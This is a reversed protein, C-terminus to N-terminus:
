EPIASFIPIKSLANADLTMAILLRLQESKPLAFLKEPNVVVIWHGHTDCIPIADIPVNGNIMDDRLRKSREDLIKKSPPGLM